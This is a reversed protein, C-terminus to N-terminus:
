EELHKTVESLSNAIYTAGHLKLTDADDFGHTVGIRKDVGANVGTQMDVKHDGLVASKSSDVGLRKMALLLSDPDPKHKETDDSTVVAFKSIGFVDAFRKEFDRLKEEDSKSTDLHLNEMELEPLAIGFNRVIHHPTGSTFIALAIGAEGLGHLFDSLGEYAKIHEKAIRDQVPNLMGHLKDFDMGNLHHPSAEYLLRITRELTDRASGGVTKTLSDDYTEYSPIEEDPIGHEVLYQRATEYQGHRILSVTDLLTGDSDSILAEIKTM